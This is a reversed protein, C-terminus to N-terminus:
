DLKELAFVAGGSHLGKLNFNEIAEKLSFFEQTAGEGPHWGLFLLYNIIASSLYGKERLQYIM